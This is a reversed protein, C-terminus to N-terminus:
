SVAECLRHVSGQPVGSGIFTSLRVDDFTQRSQVDSSQRSLLECPASRVLARAGDAIM